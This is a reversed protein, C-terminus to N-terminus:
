ETFVVDKKYLLDNATYKFKFDIVRICEKAYNFNRSSMIAEFFISRKTPIILM